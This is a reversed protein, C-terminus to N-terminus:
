LSRSSPRRRAYWCAYPGRIITNDSGLAYRLGEADLHHLYDSPEARVAAEFAAVDVDDPWVPQARMWADVIYPVLLRCLGELDGAIDATIWSNRDRPVDRADIIEVIDNLNM